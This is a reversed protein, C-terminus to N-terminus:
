SDITNKAKRVQGNSGIKTEMVKARPYTNRPNKEDVVLVLDNPSLPKTPKFWKTRRAITPLYEKVFRNWFLETLRQAEKWSKRLYEGDVNIECPPKM